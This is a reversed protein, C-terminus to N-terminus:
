AGGGSPNPLGARVFYDERGVQGGKFNVELGDIPSGPAYAKCWPAGPSLPAIMEVAEIGMARAAYSSTDGGAIIIRHLSTQRAVGKVIAGLATGFLESTKSKIAPDNYGKRKLISASTTIREDDNRSSTTLIVSRGEDIATTIALVNENMGAFPDEAEAIATTDLRVEVFGNAIAHDIQASTVPSCSGSAVLIPGNHAIAKWQNTGNLVGTNKWHAGLAMEIGSSGASFLCDEGAYSDILAGITEMQSDYMADFLVIESGNEILQKLLARSREFPQAVQLLDLLGISKSTQKALHLRLDGEDAPTVPHKSMSPHRDLRYIQGNSGIGMRAFLNGFASYRGLKPAAVLLPVFRSNFISAGV